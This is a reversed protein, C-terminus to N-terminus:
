PLSFEIYSGVKPFTNRVITNLDSTRSNFKIKAVDGFYLKSEKDYISFHVWIERYFNDAFRDQQTAYVTKIELQNLFIFLDSGYKENYYPLMERSHLVTNYCLEKKSRSIYETTLQGETVTEGKDIALKSELKSKFRRVLNKNKEKQIPTPTEYKYGVGSLIAQLDKQHDLVQDDQISYVDYAGLLQAHIHFYLEDLITETLDKGKLDTQKLIKGDADSLYNKSPCPVLMISPKSSTDEAYSSGLVDIQGQINFVLMLLAGLFFYRMSVSYYNISIMEMLM